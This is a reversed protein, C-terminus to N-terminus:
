AITEIRLIPPRGARGRVRWTRAVRADAIRTLRLQVIVDGDIVDLTVDGSAVRTVTGRGGGVIGEYTMYERRHDAQPHFDFPEATASPDVACWWSACRDADDMLFDWHQALGRTEWNHRLVVCDFRWPMAAGGHFGRRAALQALLPHM